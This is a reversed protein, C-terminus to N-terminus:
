FLPPVAGLSGGFLLALALRVAGAVALLALTTVGVGQREFWVAVLGPVIHGIVAMPPTGTGGAWAGALYDFLAGVCFGVVVMALVVRRGYILVKASAARVIGFTVLSAALTIAVRVPDDLHLAFYGVPVLGGASIGFLEFFIVGFALGIGVAAAALEPNM